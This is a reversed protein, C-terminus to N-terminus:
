PPTQGRDQASQREKETERRVRTPIARAGCFTQEDQEEHGLPRRGEQSGIRACHKRTLWNRRKVGGSLGGNLLFIRSGTANRPRVAMELGAAAGGSHGGLTQTDSRM